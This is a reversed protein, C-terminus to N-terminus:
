MVTVGTNDAYVKDHADVVQKVVVIGAHEAIIGCPAHIM